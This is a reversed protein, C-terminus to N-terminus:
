RVKILLKCSLFTIHHHTTTTPWGMVSGSEPDERSMEYVQGPTLWSTLTHSLVRLKVITPCDYAPIINLIQNKCLAFSFAKFPIPKNMRNTKGAFFIIQSLLVWTNAEGQSQWLFTLSPQSSLSLSRLLFSPFYNWWPLTSATWLFNISCM